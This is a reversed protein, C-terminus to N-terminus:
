QKRQKRRRLALVLGLSLAAGLAIAFSPFGPIPPPLITPETHGYAITIHYLYATQDSQSTTFTARWRLDSGTNTFVHTVGPTVTEWHAGGDASLQWTIDTSTPLYTVRNLTANVISETTTDVALSQANASTTSFTAGASRFLRLIVLSTRNAVYVYDGHVSVQTAATAGAYTACIRLNGADTANVLAVSGPAGVQLVYPGFGWVGLWNLSANYIEDSYDPAFPNTVNFLSMWYRDAVPAYDGDVFIDYHYSQRNQFGVLTPSAINRIDYVRFGNGGGGCDTVVYLHYGQVWLATGNESGLSFSTIPGPINYPNSVNYIYVGLPGDAIYAVEGAVCVDTAYALSRSDTFQINAPDSVDFVKFGSGYDAVFALHGQVDLKRFFVAGSSYQDLLVPHAPDSVNLTVLGDSGAAVYAVDGRVRVDWAHYGAYAGVFPLGAFGDGIRYAYVGDQAAVIVDGGYVHVDYTYPLSVSWVRAPHSPNAVDVVQLGGAGDAVFLTKGQLALRQANGPTDCSGLIVPTAPHSVDIVAVGSPGDAVYAFHGDVLVDTANGPTNVSGVLSTAYPNTVNHIYLGYTGDALYALQGDVDIGLLQAYAVTNVIRYPSAPDEVDVIVLGYGSPPKYVTAYLFHGQVAIDTTLNDLNITTMYVAGGNLAYPNSVNYVNIRNTSYLGIGAYLIDGDVRASLIGESSDRYSLRQIAYLNSLDLAEITDLYSASKFLVIYAKHDQIDLSRVPFSTTYHSLLQVAYNRPSTVVGTGWGNAVTAGTDRYTTTTFDEDYVTVGSLPVAAMGLTRITPVSVASSLVTLALVIALLLTLRPRSQNNKVLTERMVTNALLM